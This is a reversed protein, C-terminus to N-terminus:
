AKQFLMFCADLALVWWLYGCQVSEPPRNSRVPSLSTCTFSCHYWIHGHDGMGGTGYLYVSENSAGPVQPARRDVFSRHFILITTPPARHAFGTTAAKITKPHASFLCMHLKEWSGLPKRLGRGLRGLSSGSRTALLDRANNKQM